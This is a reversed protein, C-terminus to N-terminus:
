AAGSQAEEMSVQEEAGKTDHAAEKTDTEAANGSSKADHEATQSCILPDLVILLQESQFLIKSIKGLIQERL